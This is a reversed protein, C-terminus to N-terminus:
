IIFSNQFLYSYFEHWKSWQFYGWIMQISSVLVLSLISKHRSPYTRYSSSWRHLPCQASATVNKGIGIPQSSTIYMTGSVLVYLVREGSNQLCLFCSLITWSNLSGPVSFQLVDTLWQSNVYMLSVKGYREWTTSWIMDPLLLAVGFQGQHSRTTALGGCYLPKWASPTWWLHRRCCVTGGGSPHIQSYQEGQRASTSGPM